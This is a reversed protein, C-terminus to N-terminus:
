EKAFVAQQIFEQTEAHYMQLLIQNDQEVVFLCVKQEFLMTIMAQVIAIHPWWAFDKCFELRELTIHVGRTINM